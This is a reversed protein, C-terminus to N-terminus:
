GLIIKMNRVVTPSKVRTALRAVFTSQIKTAGAACLLLILFQVFWGMDERAVHIFELHHLYIWMSHSSFFSAADDMGVIPFVKKYVPVGAYLVMSCAIGYFGYTSDMPSKHYHPACPTDSNLYIHKLTLVGLSVVCFVFFSWYQKRNLDPLRYMAAFYVPFYCYNTINNGYFQGWDSRFDLNYLIVENILEFVLNVAFVKLFYKLHSSTEKHMRVIIPSCAYILMYGRVFWFYGELFVMSEYTLLPFGTWLYLLYGFFTYIYAPFLIAKVKGWMYTKYTRPTTSLRSGLASGMIVAVVNFAFVCNIFGDSFPVGPLHRIFITLLALFRYYDVGVDRKSPAHPLPTVVMPAPVSTPGEM